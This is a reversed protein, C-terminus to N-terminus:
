ASTPMAAGLVGAVAALAQAARDLEAQTTEPSLSFRVAGHAVAEAVGMGLLVPSPELSGSSCAAGASAYVGRESLGIVLAEGELGPLAILSTNELREAGRGIVVADPRLACVASEFGDRLKGLKVRHAPDALGDLSEQAAVGAGVVAPANETGSRRDLEQAGGLQQPTVRVGKGLALLGVGKPGYFKHAAGTLLDIGAADTETPRKGLWQTADTHLLVKARRGAQRLRERVGQLAEALEVIPQVVGTENNAWHVSVVVRKATQAAHEAHEAARTPDIRGHSDLDLWTAAQGSAQWAEAAIRVASHEARTTVLAAAGPEAPKTASVGLGGFVALQAAETGGSCLVLRKPDVGALTALQRRANELAYRADQGARHVSSPNAWATRQARDM